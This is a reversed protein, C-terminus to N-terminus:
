DRLLKSTIVGILLGDILLGVIGAFGALTAVGETVRLAPPAVGRGHFAAISYLLADRLHSADPPMAGLVMFGAAFGLLAIAYTIILRGLYEGYGTLVGLALSLLWRGFGYLARLPHGGTLSRSAEWFQGKRAMVLGRYRFRSATEAYAMARLAQALSRYVRAASRYEFVRRTAAKRGGHAPEGEGGESQRRMGQRALAENGLRRIGMWEIANLAANEVFGQDLIAGGIRANNIRTSKAFHASRLDAGTLNAATLDAHPLSADALLAGQLRAGALVAHDLRVSRLSAHELQVKPLLANELHAGYLDVGRLDLGELHLGGRAGKEHLANSLREGAKAIDGHSGAVLRSALYFVDAGTLRKGAFPREVGSEALAGLEQQRQASVPEGWANRAKQSQAGASSTEM